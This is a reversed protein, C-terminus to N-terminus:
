WHGDTVQMSCAAYRKGCADTTAGEGVVSRPRRRAALAAGVTADPHTPGVVGAADVVVQLRAADAMAAAAVQPHITAICRGLAHPMTPLRPLQMLLGVADWQWESVASTDHTTHVVRGQRDHDRNPPATAEATRTSSIANAAPQPSAPPAIEVHSLMDQLADIDEKLPVHKPPAHQGNASSAPSPLAHQQQPSQLGPTSPGGAVGFAEISEM